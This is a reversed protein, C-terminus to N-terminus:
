GQITRLLETIKDSGLLFYSIIILLVIIYILRMNSKRVLSKRYSDDGTYGQRLSDTIRAKMLESDSKDPSHRAVRNLLAEKEPDYHRPIYDFKRHKPVKGFGSQNM